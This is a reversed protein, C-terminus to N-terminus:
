ESKPLTFILEGEDSLFYDRRALKAIYEDDNLKVVEEEFLSQQEELKKLDSELQAYEEKKTQLAQSGSILVSTLGAGVMIVIALFVALRRFLRKKRKVANKEKREQQQAYKNNM